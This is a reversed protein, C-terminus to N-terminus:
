TVLEWQRGANHATPQKEALRVLGRDVLTIMIDNVRNPAVFGMHQRIAAASPMSGTAKVHERCFEIVRRQADTLRPPIPVGLKGEKVGFIDLAKDVHRSSVGGEFDVLVANPHAIKEDDLAVWGTTGRNRDLWMTIAKLRSYTGIFSAARSMGRAPFDTQPDTQHLLAHDFGSAAMDAMLAKIGRDNHMTNFVIAAGATQALHTVMKVCFPDFLYGIAKGDKGRRHTGRRTEYQRGPILPGDVDLFIVRM